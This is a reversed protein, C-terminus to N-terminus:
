DQTFWLFYTPMCSQSLIWFFSLFHLLSSWAPLAWCVNLSQCQYNSNPVKQGASIILGLQLARSLCGLTSVQTKDKEVLLVPHRRHVELTSRETSRCHFVLPTGM